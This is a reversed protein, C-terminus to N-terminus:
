LFNDANGFSSLDIAGEERDGEIILPLTTGGLFAFM